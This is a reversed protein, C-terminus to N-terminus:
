NYCKQKETKFVYVIEYTTYSCRRRGFLFGCKRQHQNQVIRQVVRSKTQLLIVCISVYDRDFFFSKCSPKYLQSVVERSQVNFNVSSCCWRSSQQVGGSRKFRKLDGVAMKKLEENDQM